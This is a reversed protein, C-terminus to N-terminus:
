SSTDCGFIILAVETCELVVLGVHDLGAMVLGLGEVAAHMCNKMKFRENHSPRSPQLVSPMVPRYRVGSFDASLDNHLSFLTGLWGPAIHEHEAHVELCIQLFAALFRLSFVGAVISLLVKVPKKVAFVTTEFIQLMVPRPKMQAAGDEGDVSAM